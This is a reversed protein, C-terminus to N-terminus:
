CKKCRVNGLARACTAAYHLYRDSQASVTSITLGCGDVKAEQVTSHCNFRDAVRIVILARM